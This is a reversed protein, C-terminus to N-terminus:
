AANTVEELLNIEETGQNTSEYLAIQPVQREQLLCSLSIFDHAASKIAERLALQKEPDDFDTRIELTLTTLAMFNLGKEFQGVYFALNHRAAANLKGTFPHTIVPVSPLPITPYGM